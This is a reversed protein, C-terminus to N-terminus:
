IKLEITEFSSCNMDVYLIKNVLLSNHNGFFFQIAQNVQISAVTTVVTPLITKNSENAKLDATCGFTAGFGRTISPMLFTVQGFTQTVGAHIVPVGNDFFKKDLVLRSSLNDLCDIVLDVMPMETDMSIREFRPLLEVDPNIEALIKAAADVKKKGLDSTSYLIQRNLDPEDIIGDDYFYIIPFGFRTLLQLVTSGLGGAGAVLVKVAGFRQWKENSFLPSHRSYRKSSFDM